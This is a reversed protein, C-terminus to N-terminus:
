TPRAFEKHLQLAALNYAERAQEATAFRGLRMRRGFASIEARYKARAGDFYVGKFGTKNTKAVTRNQMNQAHSAIRLNQRRNDSRDGNIHDVAQGKKADFILRHMLFHRGNEYAVAYGFRNLTWNFGSVLAFDEPSVKIM